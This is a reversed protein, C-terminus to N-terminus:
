YDNNLIYVGDKNNNYIDQRAENIESNFNYISKLINENDFKAEQNNLASRRFEEILEKIYEQSCNLACVIKSVDCVMIGEEYM